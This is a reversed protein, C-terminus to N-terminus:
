AVHAHGAEQLARLGEELQAHKILIYDTDPTSLAFISVGHEALPSAFSALVGVQEFPFPGHLKIVRWGREARAGSPVRAEPSSRRRQWKMRLRAASSACMWFVVLWYL